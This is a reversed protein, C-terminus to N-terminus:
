YRVISSIINDIVFLYIWDFANEMGFYLLKGYKVKTQRTNSAIWIKNKQAIRFKKCYKLLLKPRM